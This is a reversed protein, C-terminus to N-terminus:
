VEYHDKKTLEYICKVKKLSRTVKRSQLGTGERIMMYVQKKNYIYDNNYNQLIGLVIDIVSLDDKNLKTDNKAEILNKTLISIFERDDRDKLYDDFKNASIDYILNVQDEDDIAVKKKAGQTQQILWNKAITGFFSFAKTGKSPDFRDIKQFLHVLLDSEVNSIDGLSKNFNYTFFINEILKRFARDIVAVYIRNRQAISKNEIYDRIGKEEPAAWYTNKKRKAM